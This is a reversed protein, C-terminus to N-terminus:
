KMVSYCQTTVLLILNMCILFILFITNKRMEATDSFGSCTTCVEKGVKRREREVDDDYFYHYLSLLSLKM